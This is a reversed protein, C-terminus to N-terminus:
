NTAPVANCYIEYYNEWVDMEACDTRKLLALREDVSPGCMGGSDKIMYLFEIIEDINCPILEGETPLCVYGTVAGPLETTGKILSQWIAERLIESYLDQAEADKPIGSAIYARTQLDTLVSLAVAMREKVDGIYTLRLDPNQSMVRVQDRIRAAVHQAIYQSALVGTSGSPCDGKDDVVDV